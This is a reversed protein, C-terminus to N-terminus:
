VVKTVKIDNLDEDGTIIVACGMHEDLTENYRHTSCRRPLFFWRKHVDSWVASEHIMYGPWQIGLAARIKKYQEVWNLHSM